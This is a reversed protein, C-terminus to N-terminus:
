QNSTLRIGDKEITITKSKYLAGIAQKFSKKSCGFILKIAEPSSKDHYPLFGNNEKLLREIKEVISEVKDYGLPYLSLDIKDDERIQKIYGKCRTGPTLNTYIEDFYILGTHTNNIIAQMGLEKKYLILLDVEEGQAYTPPINDLYKHIKTSAVIRNTINDVYVYFPYSYGETLADKQENFPVLIDKTIGWDLFAGFTTIQKVKLFAFEGVTAYPKDTTAILRNENDRYIFVDVSSGITLNPDLYRIPLLIEETQEKDTLYAGFDVLKLVQLNNYKGIEIM